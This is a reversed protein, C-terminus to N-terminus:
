KGLVKVKIDKIVDTSVWYIDSVNPNESDHSNYFLYKGDPSLRPCNQYGSINIGAGTVDMDVPATWENNGKNFSIVLAEYTTDSQSFILFSGDPAICPTTSRPMANIIPGLNEAKDSGPPIRWIEFMKRLGGNRSSGVYVVGNASESYGHDNYTSNFPPFLRQAQEWVGSVREAKWIDNDKELYLRNGDASLSSISFNQNQLAPIEIQKQWKGNIQKTYYINFIKKSYGDIYCETGDASFAINYEGRDPLSVIGPAFLQAKKGPPTQGFYSGANSQAGSSWTVVGMLLFLIISKIKM